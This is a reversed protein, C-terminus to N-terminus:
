KKRSKPKASKKAKSSDKASSNESDTSDESDGDKGDDKKGKGGANADFIEKLLPNGLEDQLRAIVAKADEGRAGIEQEWTSLGGCIALIAASIDKEPDVYPQKDPVLRYNARPLPVGARIALFPLVERYLRGATAHGYWDRVPSLMRDTDLMDSRMSSYNAQSVDRDLFRRPCRLAAAIDGRIGGRFESIAQSPRDHKFAEITEGPYLRTVGGLRLSQVPDESDGDEDTDENDHVDSTVAIGISSATIAAQLETDVLDGDQMLREIVPAMWPEGRAQLSRRKEFVHVLASAPLDEAPWLSNYEPNRIRYKIARGYKDMHISGVQVTGGPGPLYTISGSILDDLWEPELPLVSLPIAGSASREPLDVLRWLLEGAVVVERFGQQQLHYLDRGDVTCHSAWNIWEERIKADTTDKGTDPELAIGSGVVLAVLGDAAARATPNNRELHRTYNRLQYLSGMALENASARAPRQGPSLIKRKPDTASYGGMGLMNAAWSAGDSARKLLSRLLGRKRGAM